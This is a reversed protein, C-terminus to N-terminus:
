YQTGDGKSWGLRAYNVVTGLYFVPFLLISVQSTIINERGGNETDLHFLPFHQTFPFFIIPTLGGGRINSYM